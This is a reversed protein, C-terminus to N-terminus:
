FKPGQNDGFSQGGIADSKLGVAGVHKFEFRVMFTRDPKIDLTPNTYYTSTMSGTIVFCEDAYRLGLRDQLRKHDDIDYRIGGLATINQTLKLGLNFEMDQQSRELGLLPDAKAFSYVAQTFLPGFTASIFTDNRRVDFSESDFRTQTMLSLNRLPTLYLGAVYDSRARELGSSPSLANRPVYVGLVPAITVDRGPDNFMNTGALHISQGFVARAGVGNFGAFTYEFGVNVRTGTDIRDFGSTKGVDFLLTDDFVISKADENPLLRQDFKSTQRSVIQVKPEIVHSGVRNTATFPYAYTLAATTTGRWVTDGPVLTGTLTERTGDYAFVEARGAFQPTFVQGINDVFKRRWTVETLARTSDAGDRRTLSRAHANLGLEGGIVPTNLIHNFDVVPYVRSQATSTETDDLLLGGFHYLRTSFYNRDSLGVLYGSNVRDTQLISDLKYFRRFTADSELTVDWGLRWWSGISFNARTELSGRWGDLRQQEAASASTLKSGDQDIGTVKVSYTGAGIRHRFEGKYLLGQKTLYSPSFTFDYNPALAFYYPTEIEFGLTTSSGVSPTLFGSRRKVSPDAHQFYPLYLVPVGFLEFQADQYTITAANQDHTIRAGSICWLPAMGADSKCPTFKAGEFQSVNGDRRILTRASIRTDDALQVSLSQVFADRFDDTVDLNEAQVIQGDPAQQRVNGRASLKSADQDYTIEDATLVYDNYFIKVNGRAIVKNGRTDYILEDGQLYLPKANDIKPARGLIGGAPKPFSSARKPAAISSSPDQARVGDVPGLLAWAFGLAAVIKVVAQGHPATRGCAFSADVAIQPPRDTAEM